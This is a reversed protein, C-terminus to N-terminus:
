FGSGAPRRDVCDPPCGFTGTLKLGPANRHLPQIFPRRSIQVDNQIVDAPREGVITTVVFAPLKDRHLQHASGLSSPPCQSRQLDHRPLGQLGQRSSASGLMASISLRGERTKDRQPRRAIQWLDATAGAGFPFCTGRPQAAVKNIAIWIKSIRLAQIVVIGPSPAAAARTSVNRGSM